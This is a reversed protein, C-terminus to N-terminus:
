KNVNVQGNVHASGMRIIKFKTRRDAMKNIAAQYNGVRMDHIIETGREDSALGTQPILRRTVGKMVHANHDHSLSSYIPAAINYIFDKIYGGASSIDKGAKVAEILLNTPSRKVRQEANEEYVEDVMVDRPDDVDLSVVEEEGDVTSMEDGDDRDSMAVTVNTAQMEITNNTTYVNM